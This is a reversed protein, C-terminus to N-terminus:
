FYDERKGNIRLFDLVVRSIFPACECLLKLRRKGGNVSFANRVGEVNDIHFFPWHRQGSLYEQVWLLCM